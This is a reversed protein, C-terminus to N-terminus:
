YLPEEVSARPKPAPAPGSEELDMRARSYFWPPQTLSHPFGLSMFLTLVPQGELAKMNCIPDTLHCPQHLSRRGRGLKSGRRLAPEEQKPM